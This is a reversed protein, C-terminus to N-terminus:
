AATATQSKSKSDMNVDGDKDRPAATDVREPRHSQAGDM